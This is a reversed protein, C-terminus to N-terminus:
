LDLWMVHQLVKFGQRNFCKRAPENFHWFDIGMRSIGLEKATRKAYDIFAGGYGQCRYREKIILNHIYLIPDEHRYIAKPRVWEQYLIYGVPEDDLWGLILYHEEKELTKDFFERFLDDKEPKKFFDPLAEHHLSQVESFLAYVVDYDDATAKKFEIQKKLM